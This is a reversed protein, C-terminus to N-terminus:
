VGLRQQYGALLELMAEFGDVDLVEDAASLAREILDSLGRNLLRRHEGAPRKRLNKVVQAIPLRGDAGVEVSKFLPALPVSTGEVLLQLRAAGAGRGDAAEIAACITALVDNTVDLKRQIEEDYLKPGSFNLSVATKLVDKGEADEMEILTETSAALAEPATGLEVRDLLTRDTLFAGAERVTDYDQFAALDDDEDFSAHAHRPPEAPVPRLEVPLAAEALPAVEVLSPTAESPGRPGIAAVPARPMPADATDEDSVEEEYPQDIPPNIGVLKGEELMALVNDLLRTSEWPSTAVLEALRRRPTCHALLTREVGTASPTAGPALVLLPQRLLPGIRTRLAVLEDVLARTDHGVQINDVFVADMATFEVAGDDVLFQFLNERFREFLLEMLLEEPLSDFLSESLGGGRSIEDRLAHLRPEDVHGAARLIGLMREDDLDSQAALVEGLMVYVRYRLGAAAHSTLCGTQGSDLCGILALRPDQPTEGKRSLM